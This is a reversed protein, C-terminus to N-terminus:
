ATCGSNLVQERGFTLSRDDRPADTEPQTLDTLVLVLM